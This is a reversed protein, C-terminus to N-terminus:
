YIKVPYNGDRKKVTRAVGGKEAKTKDIPKSKGYNRVIGSLNGGQSNSNKPKKVAM